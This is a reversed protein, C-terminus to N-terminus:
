FHCGQRSNRRELEKNVLQPIEENRILKGDSRRWGLSPIAQFRPPVEGAFREMMLDPRLRELIDCVLPIYSEMRMIDDCIGMKHMAKYPDSVRAIVDKVITELRTGVIIQLQHLKLMEIPLSNIMAAEDVIM